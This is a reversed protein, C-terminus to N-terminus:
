LRYKTTTTTIKISYLLNFIKCTQLAGIGGLYTVFKMFM